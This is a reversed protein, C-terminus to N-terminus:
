NRLDTPNEKAPQNRPPPEKQQPGGALASTTPNVSFALGTSVAVTLSLASFLFLFKPSKSTETSLSRVSSPVKVEILDQSKQDSAGTEEGIVERCSKQIEALSRRNGFPIPIPIMHSAYEDRFFTIPPFKIEYEAPAEINLQPYLEPIERVILKFKLHAEFKRTKNPLRFLFYKSNITPSKSPHFQDSSSLNSTPLCYDLKTCDLWSIVIDLRFPLPYHFDPAKNARPSLIVAVTGVEALNTLNATELHLSLFTTNISQCDCDCMRMVACTECQDARSQGCVM